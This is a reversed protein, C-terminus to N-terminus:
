INKERLHDFSWAFEGVVLGGFYDVYGGVLVVDVFWAPQGVVQTDARRRGLPSGVGHGSQLEGSRLASRQYWRQQRGALHGQVM